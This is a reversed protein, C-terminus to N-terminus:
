HAPLDLQRPDLSTRNKFRLATGAKHTAAADSSSATSNLPLPPALTAAADDPMWEIDSWL